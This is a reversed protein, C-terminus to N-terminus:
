IGTGLSQLQKYDALNRCGLLKHLQQPTYRITSATSSDPVECPRVPPATRRELAPALFPVKSAPPSKLLEAPDHEVRPPVGVRRATGSSFFLLTGHARKASLRIADAKSARPARRHSSECYDPIAQHNAASCPIVCDDSDDIDLVFHPFTLFCGSEDAIFSCGQGRRRHSRVSLLTMELDPVHLVNALKVTKDRLTLIVTGRGSCPIKESNAITVHCNVLPTYTIFSPRLPCMDQTCSSDVCAQSGNPHTARQIRGLSGNPIAHAMHADGVCLGLPRSHSRLSGLGQIAPALLSLMSATGGM